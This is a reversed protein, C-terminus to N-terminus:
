PATIPKEPLLAAKQLQGPGHAAPALPQWSGHTGELVRSSSSPVTLNGNGPYEWPKVDGVLQQLTQFAKALCCGSAVHTPPPHSDWPIWDRDKVLAPPAALAAPGPLLEPEAAATM